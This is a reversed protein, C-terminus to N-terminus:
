IDEVSPSPKPRRDEKKDQEPLTPLTIGCKTLISEATPDLHPRLEAKVVEEFLKKINAATKELESASLEAVAKPLKPPTITVDIKDSIKANMAAAQATLQFANAPFEGNENPVPTFRTGGGEIKEIKTRMSGGEMINFANKDVSTKIDKFGFTDKKTNMLDAFTTIFEKPNELLKETDISPSELFEAMALGKELLPTFTKSPDKKKKRKKSKDTESMEVDSGPTDSADEADSADPADPKNLNKVLEGATKPNKLDKILANAAEKFSYGREQYAEIKKILAKANNPPKIAFVKLFGETKGLVWKSANEAADEAAQLAAKAAKGKAGFLDAAGTVTEKFFKAYIKLIPRVVLTYFAIKENIWSTIPSFLGPKINKNKAAEFAEWVHFLPLYKNKLDKNKRLAEFKRYQNYLYFPASVAAGVGTAAGIATLAITVPDM